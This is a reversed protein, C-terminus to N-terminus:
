PNTLEAEKIHGNVVPKFYEELSLPLPQLIDQSKLALILRLDPHAEVAKIRELHCIYAGLWKLDANLISFKNRGDDDEGLVFGAIDLTSAGIDILVHLGNQCEPSKAYGTVEAAIEPIVNIEDFSIGYNDNLNIPSSVLEKVKVLSIVDYKVSLIWAKQATERFLQIEKKDDYGLTPIGINLQWSL